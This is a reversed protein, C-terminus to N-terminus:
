GGAALEDAVASRGTSRAFGELAGASAPSISFTQGLRRCRMFLDFALTVEGDAVHRDVLRAGIELAHRRDEWGLMHDFLWYHVELSEGNQATLKRLTEYGEAVLNSRMSAYALDLTKQWELRALRAQREEETEIEGAIDFDNRHERLLTGTLAFTVLVAWAEISIGIASSVIGMSPLLVPALAAALWVGTCVAVLVYYSQGLTRIVHGLSVPNFAAELRSTIGMMAASAPFVLIVGLAAAFNLALGLGQAGFPRVWSLVILLAPFTIFHLVLRWDGIPNLTDADPAFLKRRGQATARLVAYSYRWLSLLLVWGLWIGFIGARLAVALLVGYFVAAVILTSDTLPRLNVRAVM